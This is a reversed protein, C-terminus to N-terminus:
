KGAERINLFLYQCHKNLSNQLMESCTLLVSDRLSLSSAIRDPSQVTCAQFGLKFFFSSSVLARCAVGAAVVEM